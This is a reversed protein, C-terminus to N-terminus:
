IDALLVPGSLTISSSNSLDENEMEYLEDGGYFKAYQNDSFLKIGLIPDIHPEQDPVFRGFKVIINKLSLINEWCEAREENQYKQEGIYYTGNILEEETYGTYIIVTDKCHFKTRLCHILDYVDQMDDLPELGGLVMASTIPNVIYRDCIEERNIQIKTESVLAQNQCVARGCEHNCKFSCNPFIIFMSPKKYQVFDEDILGLIKM